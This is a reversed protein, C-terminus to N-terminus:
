STRLKTMWESMEERLFDRCDENDLPLVRIKESAIPVLRILDAVTQLIKEDVELQYQRDLSRVGDDEIPVDLLPRKIYIFDWVGVIESLSQQLLIHYVSTGLSIEERRGERTCKEVYWAQYAVEDLACRESILVESKCTAAWFLRITASHLAM